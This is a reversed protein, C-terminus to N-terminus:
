RIKWRSKDRKGREKEDEVVVWGEMDVWGEMVVVVWGEMEVVWGVDGGGGGMTVGFCWGAEMVVVVM